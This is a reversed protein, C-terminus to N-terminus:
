PRTMRLALFIIVGLGLVLDGISFATSLPVQAPLALWDGLFNLRTKAGMLVTNGHHLGQELMAAVDQLGAHRLAEASAPIYGGNLAIVLLNL